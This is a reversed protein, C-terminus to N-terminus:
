VNIAVFIYNLSSVYMAIFCFLIDVLVKFRSRSFQLLRSSSVSTILYVETQLIVPSADNRGRSSVSRLRVRSTWAVSSALGFNAYKNNLFM